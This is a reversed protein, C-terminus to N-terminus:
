KEFENIVQPKDFYIERFDRYQMANNPFDKVYPQLMRYSEDYWLVVIPADNMLLQEAKFLPKLSSDPHIQFLGKEFLNDFEPNKYRSVNPYSKEGDNIEHSYFSLLFNEPHPYDYVWDLLYFESKGSMINDIHKTLPVPNLEIDIGLNLMIESKIEQAVKFNREGDSNYDLRIKPNKNKSFGTQKYFYRATDLNLDYGKITESPYDKFANPPSIGYLGADHAEGSLVKDQILKRNIGYSFAKRLNIDSFISNDTLLFGLFHTSMEPTNQLQYDKLDENDDNYEKLSIIAETPIHYIMEYNGHKFSNMEQLKDEVFTISVADLFPLQNGLDDKLYYHNNRKLYINNAEVFDESKKLMFPGTGVPNVGIKDKYYDVAEKPYILAFPEALTYLFLANPKTLTMEITHDDIVKIGTVKDAKGEYYENAGVLFDRFISYGQNDKSSSCLHTYCYEVDKATFERGKDQAFCKNDHFLVGKRLNFIYKTRTADVEWDKALGNVLALNSQDLRFLGEFIIEAVRTSHIDVIHPPFINDVFESENLRFIGGYNKNGKASRNGTDTQDGTGSDSCSSFMFSSLIAIQALKKLRM